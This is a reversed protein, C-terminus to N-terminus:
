TTSNGRMHLSHKGMFWLGTVRSQRYLGLYGTTRDFVELHWSRNGLPPLQQAFERRENRWSLLGDVILVAHRGTKSWYGRSRSRAEGMGFDDSHGLHLANTGGYFPCNRYRMGQRKLTRWWEENRWMSRQAMDAPSLHDSSGVYANSWAWAAFYDLQGEDDWVKRAIKLCPDGLDAKGISYWWALGAGIERWGLIVRLLYHLTEWYRCAEELPM